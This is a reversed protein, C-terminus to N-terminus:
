PNFRVTAALRRFREDPKPEDPKPGDESETPQNAEAPAPSSAVRTSSRRDAGKEKRPIESYGVQRRGRGEGREIYELLARVLHPGYPRKNDGYRPLGDLWQIIRAHDPKSSRLRLILISENPPAM